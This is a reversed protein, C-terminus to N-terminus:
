KANMLYHHISRVMLGSAGKSPCYPLHSQSDGVGAIDFHAWKVENKVFSELFAAAKATGANRDGANSINKLDSISGKMSDRYEQIVPLQWLYEDKAKASKLLEDCLKQDNGMLGCVETGLAVLVAGTLTAADIMVDPKDDCAYDMVDGLVLRGEADTNLIEVTKGNRATVISDPFTALSNIANDTIGLYCSIKVPAHNLVSSRFAAYLTAAGAMDFKMNIMSAGPKLSYGGTDFTLGKGVLAVHKTKSTAKAPTYSLHVLRPEYASGRNVALFMGMKEKEIDKKTLVTVKVGKLKKADEAIRKAMEESHLVNPPENVLNRAFNISECTHLVKSHIDDWKKQLSKAKDSILQFGKFTSESKKSLYLEFKYDVLYLGELLAELSEEAKNKIIFSDFLIAPHDYHDKVAKFVKAAEKRLHEYELKAKDGLGLALVVAGSTLPFKYHEGKKGHFRTHSKLKAFAEKYEKPWHTNVLEMKAPAKKNKDAVEKSFASIIVLENKPSEKAGLHIDIKV